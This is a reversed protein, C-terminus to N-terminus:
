TARTRSTPNTGDDLTYTMSTTSGDLKKCTITTGSISFEALASLLMFMFQEVTPASGDAAYGETLATRLIDNVGTASLRYGTKNSAIYSEVASESAPDGPLNVTQSEIAAIDDSVSTGAPAGIRAYIDGTLYDVLRKGISGVTTLASSLADWIAQVGASSLAYGTKDSVTSATYGTKDNNTGVTVTGSSLSIQGTGTGSSLLVSAGLDRATQSTGNVKTVNVAQDAQLTAAEGPLYTSVQWKLDSPDAGSSTVHLQFEGLTDTHSTTLALKYLGPCNTSDLETVTPSIAGPTGAAKTAYITLTLGTKGSVHDSSDIMLVTVNVATSQKLFGEM